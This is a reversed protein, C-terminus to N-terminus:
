IRVWRRSRCSTSEMDLSGPHYPIASRGKKNTWKFLENVPGGSSPIRVWKRSNYTEHSVCHDAEAPINGSMARVFHVPSGWRSSAAGQVGPVGADELQYQVM